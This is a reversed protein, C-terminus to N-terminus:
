DWLNEYLRFAEAFSTACETLLNKYEPTNLVPVTIYSRLVKLLETWGTGRLDDTLQYSMSTSKYIRLRWPERWEEALTDIFINYRVVSGDNYHETFDLADRTLLNVTVYGVGSSLHQGYYQILNDLRKKFSATSGTNTSSSATTSGTSVKNGKSDKWEILKRM